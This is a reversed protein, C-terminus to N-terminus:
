LCACHNLGCHSESTREVKGRPGQIAKAQRRHSPTATRNTIRPLSLRVRHLFRMMSSASASFAGIDARDARRDQSLFGKLHPVLLNRLNQRTQRILRIRHLIQLHLYHCCCHCVQKM